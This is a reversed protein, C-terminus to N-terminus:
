RIEVDIHGNVDIDAKKLINEWQKPSRYIPFPHPQIPKRSKWIVEFTGDTKARGIYVTKWTHQTAPDVSVISGDPSNFNQVALQNKILSTNEHDINSYAQAWLYISIYASVIPDGVARDEGYQKKFNNIFKFNAENELSSFYNWATYDGAINELNFQQIEVEGVSFSMVPIDEPTIGAKRLSQFFLDNDVGNITNVIIDAGSRKIDQILASLDKEGFPIYKDGVITRQRAKVIDKIIIGAVRPFVYDSGVLYFKKKNQEILWNIAPIIQQNPAAGTYIIWPSLELGEYQVPYFLIKKYKEVVPKVRKRCSSTWCAFFFSIKEELILKEIESAFIEPNSKGDRIVPIIKKGNIGGKSNIEHIAMLYSDVLPAESIAMEGTMSHIIGVKIIGGEKCQLNIITICFFTLLILKRVM